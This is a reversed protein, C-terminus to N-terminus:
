HRNRFFAHWCAACFWRQPGLQVGGEPVRDRDCCTCHLLKNMHSEMARHRTFVVWDVDNHTVAALKGEM